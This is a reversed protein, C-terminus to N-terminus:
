DFYDKIIDTNHSSKKIKLDANLRRSSIDIKKAAIANDITADKILNAKISGEKSKIVGFNVDEGLKRGRAHLNINKVAVVNSKQTADTQRFHLPKNNTGISGSSIMQISTGKVNAYNKLETADNLISGTHEEGNQDSYKDTLLIVKGDAKIRDVNLDHGKTAINIVSNNKKDTTFAKVRGDVVVNISKKLDRSNAGVGTTNVDEGISGNKAAM